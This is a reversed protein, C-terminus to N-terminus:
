ELFTKLPLETPDATDHLSVFTCQIRQLSAQINDHFRSPLVHGTLQQIETASKRKTRSQLSIPPTHSVASLNEAVTQTGHKQTQSVISRTANERNVIQESWHASISSHEWRLPRDRVAKNERDFELHQCLWMIFLKCFIKTFPGDRHKQQTKRKPWSETPDQDVNVLSINNFVFRYSVTHELVHLDVFIFVNRFFFVGAFM